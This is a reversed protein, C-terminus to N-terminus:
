MNGVSTNNVSVASSSHEVYLGKMAGFLKEKWLLKTRRLLQVYRHTTTVM